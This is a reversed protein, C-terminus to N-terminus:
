KSDVGFRTSGSISEFRLQTLSIMPRTVLTLSVVPRTVSDLTGIESGFPKLVAM